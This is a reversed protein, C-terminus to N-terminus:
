VIEQIEDMSKLRFEQSINEELMYKLYNYITLQVMSNWSISAKTKLCNKMRMGTSVSFISLVLIKEVLYSIKPNEFKWCKGCIVCYFKKM